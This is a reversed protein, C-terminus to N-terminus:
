NPVPLEGSLGMEVLALEGDLRAQFAASCGETWAIVEARGHEREMRVIEAGVMAVAEAVAVPAVEPHVHVREIVSEAVMRGFMEGAVRFVPALEPDDKGMEAM